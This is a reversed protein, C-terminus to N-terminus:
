AEKLKSAAPEAASAAPRTENRFISTAAEEQAKRSGPRFAYFVVGVFVLTMFLLMWSDAFHRLVTYLDM